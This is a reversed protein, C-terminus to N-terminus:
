YYIESPSVEIEGKVDCVDEVEKESFAVANSRCFFNGGV